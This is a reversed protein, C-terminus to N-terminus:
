KSVKFKEAKYCSNTAALKFAKKKSTTVLAVSRGVLSVQWVIWVSM